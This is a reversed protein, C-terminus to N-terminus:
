AGKGAEEMVRQAYKRNDDDSMNKRIIKEAIQVSLNAVQERLIERSHDLEREIDTKAKQLSKEAEDHAKQRIEQAFHQGERIAEQIKARGEKEIDQLMKEYELKLGDLAKAKVEAQHLSDAIKKQREDLVSFVTGFAFKSLIWIVLLFAVLQTLIEPIANLIINLDM